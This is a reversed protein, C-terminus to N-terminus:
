GTAEIDYIIYNVKEGIKKFYIKNIISNCNDMKGVGKQEGRGQALKGGASGGVRLEHGHTM